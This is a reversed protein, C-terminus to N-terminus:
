DFALEVTEEVQCPRGMKVVARKQKLEMVINFLTASGSVGEQARCIAAPYNTQDEFLQSFKEWSVAETTKEDTLEKMREVRLPSDELWKPEMAGKHEALLHNSHIVRGREDVPLKAFTSSTFELGVAGTADGILMHASSAMGISELKAVAKKASTSELVTRLGLHVPMSSADMGKARIANFCVGVGSSNLGIKGIM